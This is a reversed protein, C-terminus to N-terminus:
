CIMGPFLQLDKKKGIEYLRLFFYGIGSNGQMLCPSDCDTLYGNPLPINKSFYNEVCEDAMKIVAAHKKKNKLLKAAKLLFLANGSLGHCLSFDYISQRNLYNTTLGAAKKVAVLFNKDKTIEYARLRAFGIGPSGHCWALSFAQEKEPKINDPIRFDPWNQKQKNFFSDEYRFAEKAAALYKKDGSAAYLEMLATGIGSAGHAFGTLNQSVGEMTKWSYGADNKEAREILQDGLLIAAKLLSTQRAYHQHCYLLFLIIGAAGTIIDNGDENNLSALLAKMKKDAEKGLAKNRFIVAAAKLVFIIGARGHYFGNSLRTNDSYLLCQIAGLVTKKIIPQPHIRYAQVLFFAVGAVGDYFDPPLARTYIRRRGDELETALGPWNCANSHWVADRCIKNALKIAAQKYTERKNNM